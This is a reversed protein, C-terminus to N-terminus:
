SYVCVWVCIYLCVYSRKRLETNPWPHVSVSCVDKVAKLDTLSSENGVRSGRLKLDHSWRWAKHEVLKLYMVHKNVTGICSTIKLSCYTPLFSGLKEQPKNDHIRICPVPASGTRLSYAYLQLTAIHNWQLCIARRRMEETNTTVIKM